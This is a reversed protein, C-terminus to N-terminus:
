HSRSIRPAAIHTHALPERPRRLWDAFIQELEKLFSVKDKPSDIRRSGLNTRFGHNICRTDNKTASRLRSTFLVKFTKQIGLKGPLAEPRVTGKRGRCASIVHGPVLNLDRGRIVFVHYSKKSKPSVLPKMTCRGGKWSMRM